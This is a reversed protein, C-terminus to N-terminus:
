LVDPLPSVTRTMRDKRKSSGDSLVWSIIWMTFLCWRIWEGIRDGFCCCITLFIIPYLFNLLWFFFLLVFFVFFFIFCMTFIKTVIQHLQDFFLFWLSQRYSNRASGNPVFYPELWMVFNRTNDELFWRTEQARSKYCDCDCDSIFIIAVCWLNGYM